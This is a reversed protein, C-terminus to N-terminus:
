VAAVSPPAALYEILDAVALGNRELVELTKPHDVTRRFKAPLTEACFAAVMALVRNKEAEPSGDGKAIAAHRQIMARTQDLLTDAKAEPKAAAPPAWQEKLAVNLWAAPNRVGRAVELADVSRRLAEEGHAMLKISARVGLQRLRGELDEPLRDGNGELVEFSSSVSGNNTKKLNFPREMPEYGGTPVPLPTPDDGRQSQHPNVEMVARLRFGIVYRTVKGPRRDCDVLGAAELEKIASLMANRGMGTRTKLDELSPWAVGGAKHNVRVLLALLAVQARPTLSALGGNLSLGVLANYFKDSVSAM